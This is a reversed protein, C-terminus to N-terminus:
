AILRHTRAKLTPHRAVSQGAPQYTIVLARRPADSANPLSGHVIHPSFFILSGAAVELAVQDALDFCAPDTYFGGLQTGDDTGPLCGRRHSGRIVRFCGNDATADDLAVMVNPLADVHDCDHIWYPSDQHWGFGSGARPRKLNLKDTWLAIASTGLISRVPDALRPDDLLADLRPHLDHVPEIVKIHESCAGSPSGNPTSHPTSSPTGDPANSSAGDGREFQVTVHDLGHDPRSGESCPGGCLDVFRKGDLIYTRGAPCLTRAREAAAEAASRLDDLEASTFQAGRVLFGDRRYRESEQATLAFPTAAGSAGGETGISALTREPHGADPQQQLASPNTM